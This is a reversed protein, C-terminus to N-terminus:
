TTKKKFGTLYSCDISKDIIIEHLNYKNPRNSNKEICTKKLYLELYNGIITEKQTPRIEFNEKWEPIEQSNLAAFADALAGRPFDIEKKNIGPMPQQTYQPESKNIVPMPTPTYTRQVEQAAIQKPEDKPKEPEKYTLAVPTEKVQPKFQEFKGEKFLTKANDYTYGQEALKGFHRKSTIIAGLDYWNEGKKFHKKLQKYSKVPKLIKLKVQIKEANNKDYTMSVEIKDSAFTVTAGNVTYENQVLLDLAEPDKIEEQTKGDPRTVSIKYDKIKLGQEANQTLIQNIRNATAAMKIAVEEPTLQAYQQTLTRKSIEKEFQQICNPNQIKQELTEEKIAPKFQEFRGEKFLTKANDYTYGQEALESFHKKGTIFVGFDRWTEDEEEFYKKLEEYSDIPQDLQFNVRMNGQGLEANYTITLEGKDSDFVFTADFLEYDNKILLELANVDGTNKVRSGDPKLLQLACKKLKLGQKNKEQEKGKIFKNVTNAVVATKILLENYSLPAYPSSITKKRIEKEFRTIDHDLTPENIEQDDFDIISEEKDIKQTLTQKPKSISKPTKVTEKGTACYKQAAQEQEHLLNDKLGEQAFKLFTPADKANNAELAKLARKKDELEERLKKRADLEQQIERKQAAKKKDAEEKEQLAKKELIIQEETQQTSNAESEPKQKILEVDTM